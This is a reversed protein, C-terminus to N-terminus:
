AGSHKGREHEGQSLEYLKRAPQTNGYEMKALYVAARSALQEVHVM